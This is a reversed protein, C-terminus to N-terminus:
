CVFLITPCLNEDIGDFRGSPVRHACSVVRHYFLLEHRAIANEADVTDIDARDWRIFHRGQELTSDDFDVDLTWRVWSELEFGGRISHLFEHCNVAGL